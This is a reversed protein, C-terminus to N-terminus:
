LARQAQCTSPSGAWTAPSASSRPHRPRDLRTSM